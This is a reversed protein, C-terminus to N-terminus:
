VALKLELRFPSSWWNYKLRMGLYTCFVHKRHRRNCALRPITMVSVMVLPVSVRVVVRVSVEVMVQVVTIVGLKVSLVTEIGVIGGGRGVPGGGGSVDAGGGGGSVDAGGGGGGSVEAGGGGGGSVDVGEGGGSGVAGGGGSCVPGGSEGPAPELRSRGPSVATSPRAARMINTHLASPSREPGLRWM